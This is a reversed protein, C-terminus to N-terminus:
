PQLEGFRAEIERAEAAVEDAARNQSSEWNVYFEESLLAKESETVCFVTAWSGGDADLCFRYSSGSDALARNCVTIVRDVDYWDGYNRATFRYLRGAHVFQVLYQGEIDDEFRSSMAEHCSEPKFQGAGAGALDEILKDHGVPIYSTEVDFSIARGASALITELRPADDFEDNALHRSISDQDGAILGAKALRYALKTPAKDAAARRWRNRADDPLRRTMNAISTEVEGGGLSITARCIAELEARDTASDAASILANLIAPDGTDAHNVEVAVLAAGRNSLDGIDSLVRGRGATGELRRKCAYACERLWDECYAEVLDALAEVEKGTGVELVAMCRANDAFSLTRRSRVVEQLDSALANAATTRVALDDADLFEMMVQDWAGSPTSRLERKADLCAKLAREPQKRALVRLIAGKRAASGKPLAAWLANTLEDSHLKGCLRAAADSIGDEHLLFSLRPVIAPNSIAPDRLDLAGFKEIVERLENGRLTLLEVLATQGAESDISWILAAATARVRAPTDGQLLAGLRAMAEEPKMEAPIVGDLSYWVDSLVAVSLPAPRNATALNRAAEIEEASEIVELSLPPEVVTESSLYENPVPIPPAKSEKCGAVACWVLLSPIAFEKIQTM